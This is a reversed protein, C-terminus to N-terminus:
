TTTRRTLWVASVVAGALLVLALAMILATPTTTTGAPQLTFNYAASTVVGSGTAAAGFPFGAGADFKQEALKSTAAAKSATDTLSAALSTLNSAGDVFYGLPGNALKNILSPLQNIQDALPQAARGLDNAISVLNDVPEKLTAVLALVGDNLQKSAAANSNATIQLAQVLGCNSINAITAPSCPRDLANRIQPLRDSIRTLAASADDLNAALSTLLPLMKNIDAGVKGLNGFLGTVASAIQNSAAQCSSVDWDGNNLAAQQANLLTQLQKLGELDSGTVKGSNIAAQLSSANATYATVTAAGTSCTSQLQGVTQADLVEGVTCAKGGPCVMSQLAAPVPTNLLPALEPLADAVAKMLPIASDLAKGIKGTTDALENLAAQNSSSTLAALAGALKGGASDLAANAGLLVDGARSIDKGATNLLDDISQPNLRLRSLLQLVPDVKTQLMNALDGSAEGLGGQVAVLMPVVKGDLMGNLQTGANGVQSLGSSVSGNPSHPILSGVMAPLAANHAFGSFSLSSTKGSLSGSGTIEQGASFGSNAWPAVINTWGNGFVGELNITFPVSVDANETVVNGQANRYTVPESTTTNNTFVWQIEVQGSVSTATNPDVSKGDVTMKTQISVPLQGNFLGGVALLNDVSAGSNNLNYVISSGNRQLRSFSSVDVMRSDGVPINVTSQGTGSANTAVAYSSTSVKGDADATIKMANGVAVALAQSNDSSSSSSSAQRATQKALDVAGTNAVVPSLIGLAAGASVILVTLVLVAAVIRVTRDALISTRM